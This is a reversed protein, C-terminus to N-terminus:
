KTVKMEDEISLKEGTTATESDDEKKGYVEKYKALYEEVVKFAEKM